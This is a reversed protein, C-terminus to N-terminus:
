EKDYRDANTATTEMATAESAAAASPELLKAEAALSSYVDFVAAATIADLFRAFENDSKANRGM